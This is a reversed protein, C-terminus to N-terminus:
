SSHVMSLNAGVTLTDSVGYGLTAIGQTQNRRGIDGDSGAHDFSGTMQFCYRGAATGCQTDLVRAMFNQQQAAALEKDAGVKPLSKVLNQFDQIAPGTLKYIFARDEGDDNTAVGVVTNGDASVANASSYGSQGPTFDGIEQMGQAHAMAAVLPLLIFPALKPIMPDTGVFRAGDQFM